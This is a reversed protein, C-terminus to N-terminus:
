QLVLLKSFYRIITSYKLWNEDSSPPYNNDGYFYITKLENDVIHLLDIDKIVKAVESHTLEKYRTFVPIHELTDASDIRIESKAKNWGIPLYERNFAVWRGNNDKRIGYPMNIRFFDNIDM